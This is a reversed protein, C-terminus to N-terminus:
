NYTAIVTDHVTIVTATLEPGSNVPMQLMEATTTRVPHWYRANSIFVRSWKQAHWPDIEGTVQWIRIVACFTGIFTVAPPPPPPPSSVCFIKQYETRIDM